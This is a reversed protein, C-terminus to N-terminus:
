AAPRHAEAPPMPHIACAASFRHRRAAFWRYAHQLLARFSAGAGLAALPWAWWVRGALFLVADAGGLARGDATLVRMEDLLKELPIGYSFRLRSSMWPAQLPVLAFGRRELMGRFRRALRSCVGCAGDYVVWGAPPTYREGPHTELFTGM